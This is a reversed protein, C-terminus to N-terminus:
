RQDRRAPSRKDTANDYSQLADDVDVNGEEERYGVVVNCEAVAGVSADLLLQLENKAM